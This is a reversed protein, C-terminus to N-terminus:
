GSATKVGRGAKKDGEWIEGGIDREGAQIGPIHMAPVIKPHPHLTNIAIQM